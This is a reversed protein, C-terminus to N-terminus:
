QLDPLRCPSYALHRARFPTAPQFSRSPTCLLTSSSAHLPIPRPRMPTVTAAWTRRYTKAVSGCFIRATWSGRQHLRSGFSCKENYGFLCGEMLRHSMANTLKSSSFDYLTYGRAREIRWVDSRHRDASILVVGEIRNEEIFSFIVEREDPFGDWTDKSGPKTGSAWPVSSAIVRFVATSRKLKDLLWAKQGPGLM